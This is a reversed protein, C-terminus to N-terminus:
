VTYLIYWMILLVNIWDTSISNTLQKFLIIVIVFFIAEYGMLIYLNQLM